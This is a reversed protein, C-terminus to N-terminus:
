GGGLYDSPIDIKRSFSALLAIFAQLIFEDFKRDRLRTFKILNCMRGLNILFNTFNEVMRTRDVSQENKSNQM